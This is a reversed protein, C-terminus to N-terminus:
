ELWGMGLACGPDAFRRRWLGGFLGSRGAFRRLRRRRVPGRDGRAQEVGLSPRRFADILGSGHFGSGPEDDDQDGRRVQFGCPGEGVRRQGRTQNGARVQHRSDLAMIPPPSLEFAARFDQQEQLSALGPERRKFAQDELPVRVVRGLDEGQRQTGAGFPVQGPDALGRALPPSRCCCSCRSTEAMKLPFRSRTRARVTSTSGDAHPSSRSVQATGPM